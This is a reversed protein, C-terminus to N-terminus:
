DDFTGTWPINIGNKIKDLEVVGSERFAEAARKRQQSLFESEEIRGEIIRASEEAM